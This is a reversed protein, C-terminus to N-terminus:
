ARKRGVSRRPSGMAHLLQDLTVYEGRAHERRGRRLARLEAASARVVPFRDSLYTRLAERVLESRTRHEAKRVKEVERIMQPPLSITMTQRTRM